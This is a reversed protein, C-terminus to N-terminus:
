VGDLTLKAKSQYLYVKFYDHVFKITREKNGGETVDINSYIVSCAKYSHKNLNKM